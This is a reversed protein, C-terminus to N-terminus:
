KPTNTSVALLEQETWPQNAASPKNTNTPAPANTDGAPANTGGAPANTGTAPRKQPSEFVSGENKLSLLYAALQKAEITAVFKYKPENPLTLADAPAKDSAVKEFLYAYPPMVSNPMVSKPNLLHLYIWNVDNTSKRMGFNALDPGLRIWGLQPPRDLMYDTAVTRREGFHRDIDNGEERPRVQQTHCAACGQARYVEAGQIAEGGRGIPYVAATIPDKFPEQRSFEAHPRFVFGFWSMSFTALLGIFIFPAINM